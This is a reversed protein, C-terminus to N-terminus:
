KLEKSLAFLLRVVGYLLLLVVFALTSNYFVDPFANGEPLTPKQVVVLYKLQRYAEIRSKELSILSSSYAQSSLELELKLASYKGLIEGISVNEGEHKSLRNREIAVQSELAVLENKAIHVQPANSAMVETLAKVEARKKALEGELGYAIAQMAAGESEPDLLDHKQQFILLSAKANELKKVALDHEGKIFELQEQALKHGIENIFWESRQWIAKTIQYSFEPAFGQNAITIISSNPDIEVTSYKLYYELFEEKTHDRELRSLLDVDAASYHKSLKLTEQLYDLMDNSHIYAKVLEADPEQSGMGLGSLLSMEPSMTAMGDPQKVIVKAVSQYRESALLAFYLTVALWPLIVFIFWPKKQRARQAKEEREQEALIAAASNADIFDQYEQLKEKIVAANPKLELAKRMYCQAIHVDTKELNLAQEQLFDVSSKDKETIQSFVKKWRQDVSVPSDLLKYVSM